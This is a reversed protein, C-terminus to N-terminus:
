FEFSIGASIGHNIETKDDFIFDARYTVFPKVWYNLAPEWGLNTMVGPVHGGTQTYDFYGVTGISMNFWGFLRQELVVGATTFSHGGEFRTVDVGYRRIESAPLLIRGGFHGLHEGELVSYGGHPRIMVGSKDQPEAAQAATNAILLALLSYQIRKM